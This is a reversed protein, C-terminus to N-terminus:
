EHEKQRTGAQIRNYESETILGQMYLKEVERNNGERYRYENNMRMEISSVKEIIEGYGYMVFSSIWAMLTGISMVISGLLGLDRNILVFGIIVAAIAEIVFITKTLVKIKSGINEYM